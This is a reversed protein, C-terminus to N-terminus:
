PPSQLLGNRVHTTFCGTDLDSGFGKPIKETVGALGTGVNGRNDMAIQFSQAPNLRVGSVVVGSPEYARWLGRLRDDAVECPGTAGGCVTKFNSLICDANRKRLASM